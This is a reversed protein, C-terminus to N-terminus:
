IAMMKVSVHGEFDLSGPFLNGRDIFTVTIVDHPQNVNTNIILFYFVHVM